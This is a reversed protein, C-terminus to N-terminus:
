RIEGRELLTEADLGYLADVIEVAFSGPGSAAAAAIEGAVGTAVLAAVAAVIPDPEVARVAAAIATVACGMATVRDMLPHGNAVRVLRRGDSVVDVEGTVALTSISHVAYERIAPEEADLGALGRFEAHNAHVIAPELDMLRRAFDLRSPSVEAKVPDLVWPVGAEKAVEIATLTADRRMRDLMGLNVLLGDATAVFAPVEEPSFTMSPEAGVALLMNATFTQAVPSTLVHIRPRRRRLRDIVEAIQTPSPKAAATAEGHAPRPPSTPITDDIM